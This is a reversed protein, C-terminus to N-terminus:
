KEIVDNYISLVKKIMIDRTLESHYRSLANKSFKTYLNEDNIIKNIAEGLEVSNKIPVTIGTINDQNVWDVGSGPIKTSVIPLGYSLAEVQVIAYAETKFISSLAFIKSKKFLFDKELDTIKGPLLVRHELKNDKIIRELKEREEGEGAIVIISDKPLFTAAKILYEFGKYYALRGLSFIINKNNLSLFRNNEPEVNSQKVNIGIPVVQCKNKFQELIKSGKIYNPSTAIIVSSKKMLWLLLPKYFFLFFKQRLIDSHWHLVIPVKPRTLLLAIAAMPDPSHIHLIDYDNQIKRLIKIVQFSFLTSFKKIMLKSRYITGTKYEEEVYEAKDNVGLADCVINDDNLGETLLQIVVEVGGLNAPPYAKGFQLIKM